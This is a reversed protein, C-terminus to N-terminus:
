RRIRTLTDQPDESPDFHFDITKGPKEPEPKSKVTQFRKVVAKKPKEPLPGFFLTKSLLPADADILKIARYVTMGAAASLFVLVAVMAADKQRDSDFFGSEFENKYKNLSINKSKSFYSEFFNKTEKDFATIQLVGGPAAYANFQITTEKFTGRINFNGQSKKEASLMIKPEAAIEGDKDIKYFAIDRVNQGSCNMVGFYKEDLLKFEIVRGNIKAKVDNSNVSSILGAILKAFSAGFQDEIEVANKNPALNHQFDGAAASQAGGMMALVLSAPILIKSACSASQGGCSPCSAEEKKEFSFGKAVYNNEVFGIRM